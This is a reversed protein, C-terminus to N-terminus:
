LSLFMDFFSPFTKNVCEPDKIKIGPIRLGALSFAMAIRHDNYTDIEAGHLDGGEIVLGDPLEEVIAGLKKLEVTLAKLRDSEKYRLNSVNTIITRGPAFLSTIALTLVMDPMENLDIKIGRTIPGSVEMWDPGTKTLAGMEELIRPFGADGQISEDGINTVKVRGGTIAAAAWFYSASSADGEISYTRGTYTQGSPVTFCNPEDETTSVGFVRMMRLTMDVYPRSVLEGTINITVEEGAYPACLLISSLFQSSIDGDLNCDGGSIGSARVSVPPCGNENLSRVKVGLSNLGDLLDEIPRERMRPSGDLIYEGDGLSVLSTLFRMTTGSNEANLEAQRSPILGGEGHVLFCEKDTSINFGLSRLSSIMVATDECELPNALKTKGRGLAGIVLARNTISKSGPIALEATIREKAPIEIM